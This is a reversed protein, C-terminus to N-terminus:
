GESRGGPLYIYRRKRASISFEQRAWLPVNVTSELLCGLMECTRISPLNDDDTTIVFTRMGLEALVPVCLRCARLAAHRGRFPPDVHYGIHGLYFLGADEGARLAIEGAPQGQPRGVLIDFIMSTAGNLQAVHATYERPRLFVEGDELLTQGRRGARIFAREIPTKM